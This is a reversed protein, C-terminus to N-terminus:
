ITDGKLFKLKESLEKRANFLRSRVTGVPLGLKKAIQEYSLEEFEFLIVVQRLKRPLADVAKLIIKQREKSSLVEEQKPAFVEADVVGDDSIQSAQQKYLRSKFYDKCVNVTLACIWQKFKGGEPNYKDLNRWTKIYVDQELDENYSGTIKKIIARIYSKNENIIQTM